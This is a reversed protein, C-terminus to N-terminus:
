VVSYNEDYLSNNTETADAITRLIPFDSIPRVSPNVKFKLKVDRTQTFKFIGLFDYITIEKVGVRYTGRYKPYINFTLESSKYPLLFLSQDTIDTDMAEWDASFSVYANTCLLFSDNTLTFTYQLIEGKMIEQANFEEKVIYRNRLILASILSVLPLLLIAYLATYTAEHEYIFV